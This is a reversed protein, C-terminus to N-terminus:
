PPPALSEARRAASDGALSVTTKLTSVHYWNIYTSVLHSVVQSDATVNTWPAAQVQVPPNDCLETLSPMKRVATVVEPHLTAILAAGDETSIEANTQNIFSVVEELPASRQILKLLEQSQESSGDRFSLLLKELAESRYELEELKRKRM